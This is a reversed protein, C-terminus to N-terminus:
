DTHIDQWFIVRNKERRKAEYLAIRDAKDLLEAKSKADLPYLAGGISLTQRWTPETDLGTSFEFQAIRRRVREAVARASELTVRPLIFAFEEGGYRAVIDVQRANESLLHAVQKLVNDGAAHGLTDNVKKFDDLDAILLAMPNGTRKSREIERLLQEDFYRRNHIQTTHDVSIMEEVELRRKILGGAFESVFEVLAVDEDGLANRRSSWAELVGYVYADAKLPAVILSGPEGVTVHRAFRRDSSLDPIHLANGTEEVTKEVYAPWFREEDPWQCVKEFETLTGARSVRLARSMFVRIRDCGVLNRLLQYLHNFAGVLDTRRSSAAVAELLPHPLSRGQSRGATEKPTEESPTETAPTATEPVSVSIRNLTTLDQYVLRWAGDAGERSVRRLYGLDCLRDLLEVAGAALARESSCRALSSYLELGDTDLYRVPILGQLLEFYSARAKKM